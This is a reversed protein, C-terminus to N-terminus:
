NRGLFDRWDQELQVVDRGTLRKVEAHDDHWLARLLARGHQEYLYKAFSGAQPYAVSESVDRFDRVLKEFPALRAKDALEAAVEHLKRGRWQDDAFVAMGENLWTPGAGWERMAVIHFLEHAASAAWDEAIVLAMTNTRFFAIGNTKRGVLKKMRERSGVMFVHVGASDPRAQVLTRARQLARDLRFHLLDARAAKATSDIHLVFHDSTDTQWVFGARRFLQEPSRQQAALPAAFVLLWLSIRWIM